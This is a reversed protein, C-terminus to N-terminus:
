KKAPQSAQQRLRDIVADIREKRVYTVGGAPDTYAYHTGAIKEDKPVSWASM